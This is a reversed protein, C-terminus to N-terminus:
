CKPITLAKLTKSLSASYLCILSDVFFFMSQMSCAGTPKSAVLHYMRCSIKFMADLYRIM